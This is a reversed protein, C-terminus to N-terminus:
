LSEIAAYIVNHSPDYFSQPHIVDAIKVLADPDVLLAGLLSQEADMDHPPLKAKPM